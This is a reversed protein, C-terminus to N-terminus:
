VGWAVETNNLPRSSSTKCIPPGGDSLTREKPIEQRPRVRKRSIGREITESVNLNSLVMCFEQKTELHHNEWCSKVVSTHRSFDSFTLRSLNKTTITSWFHCSRLAKHTEAKAQFRKRQSIIGIMWIKAEPLIFAYISQFPKQRFLVKFHLYSDLKPFYGHALSPATPLWLM